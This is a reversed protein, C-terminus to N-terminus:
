KVGWNKKIDLKTENEIDEVTRIVEKNSNIEPITPNKERFVELEKLVTQYLEQKDELSLNQKIYEDLAKRLIEDRSLGTEYKEVLNRSTSNLLTSLKLPSKASYIRDFQRIPAGVRKEQKKGTIKSTSIVKKEKDEKKSEEAIKKIKEIGSNSGFIGLSKIDTEKAM